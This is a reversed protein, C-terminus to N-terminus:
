LRRAEGQALRGGSQQYHDTQAHRHPRVRQPQGTVAIHAFRSL